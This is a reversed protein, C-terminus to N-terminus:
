LIWYVVIEVEKEIRGETHPTEDTVSPKMVTIAGSIVDLISICKQM